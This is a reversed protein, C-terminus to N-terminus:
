GDEELPIVLGKAAIGALPKPVEPQPECHCAWVQKGRCQPKELEHALWAWPCHMGSTHVPDVFEVDHFVVSADKWFGASTVAFATDSSFGFRGLSVATTFVGPLHRNRRLKLPLGAPGEGQAWERGPFMRAHRESWHGAGGQTDFRMLNLLNDLDAAVEHACWLAPPEQADGVYRHSWLLHELGGAHDAHAHTVIIDTISHLPIGMEDRLVYPVTTGCDVLIRHDKHDILFATNGRAMTAFAGGAGLVTVRM